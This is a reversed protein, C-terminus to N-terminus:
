PLEEYCAANQLVVDIDECAMVCGDDSYLSAM